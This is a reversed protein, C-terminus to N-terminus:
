NKIVIVESLRLLRGNRRYGPKEISVITNFEKTLDPETDVIHCDALTAKGDNFTMEEVGNKKLLEVLKKRSTAFRKRTKIAAEEEPFLEEIRKEAKDFADLVSLLDTFIADLQKENDSILEEIKHEQELKLKKLATIEAEIAAILNTQEM